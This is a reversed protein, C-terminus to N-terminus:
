HAPEGDAFHTGTVKLVLKLMVTNACLTTLEVCIARDFRAAMSDFVNDTVRGTKLLQSCFDYVIAEDQTMGTPRRGELLAKIKDNTLGSDRVNDGRLFIEADAAKHRAATMVVAMLRLPEPLRLNFRLYEWLPQLLRAVDPSYLLAAYPDSLGGARQKAIEEAVEHQRPTMQVPTLRPYRM